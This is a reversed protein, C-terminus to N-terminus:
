VNPFIRSYEDYVIELLWQEERLPGELHRSETKTRSM